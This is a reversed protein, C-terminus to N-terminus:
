TEGRPTEDDVRPGDDRGEGLGFLRGCAGWRKVGSREVKWLFYAGLVFCLGGTILWLAIASSPM